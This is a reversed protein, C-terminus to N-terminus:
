SDWAFDRGLFDYLRKNHPRFYEVLQARLGPDIPKKQGENFRKYTSLSFVPLGLLQQTRLFCGAPDQFFDESKFILIQREPFLEFWRKVQDVYIGRALYSHLKYATSQYREDAMMKELEGRLREPEADIAERFSLHEVSKIHYLYHSYARDVPNRLLMIIKADPYAQKIRGAAHPHFIYYPTAEGTIVQHRCRATRILQAIRSPFQRRYWAWGNHYNDTFFHIEKNAAPLVCPHQALYKYLSTTGGKQVGVIFFSPNM